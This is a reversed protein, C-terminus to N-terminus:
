EKTSTSEMEKTLDAVSPDLSSANRKAAEKAAALEICMPCEVWLRSRCSVNAHYFDAMAQSRMFVVLTICRELAEYMDCTRLTRGKYKVKLLDVADKHYELVDPFLKTVGFRELENELDKATFGKNSIRYVM